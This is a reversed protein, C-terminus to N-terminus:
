QMSSKMSYAGLLAILAGIIRYKWVKRKLAPSLSKYANHNKKVQKTVQATQEGARKVTSVRKM